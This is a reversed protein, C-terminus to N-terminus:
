ILNFVEEMSSTLNDLIRQDSVHLFARGNFFLSVLHLSNQLKHLRAVMNDFDVEWKSTVISNVLNDRTVTCLMRSMTGWSFSTLQFIQSRLADWRSSNRHTRLSSCLRSLTFLISSFSSFLETVLRKKNCLVCTYIYWFFSLETNSLFTTLYFHSFYSFWGASSVSNFSLICYYLSIIVAIISNLKTNNKM